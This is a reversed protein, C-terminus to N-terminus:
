CVPRAMSQTLPTRYIGFENVEEYDEFATDQLSSALTSARRYARVSACRRRQTRKGCNSCKTAPIQVSASSDNGDSPLSERGLDSTSTQDGHDRIFRKM